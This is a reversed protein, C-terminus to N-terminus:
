TDGRDPSSQAGPYRCGDDCEHGDCGPCPNHTSPVAADWDIAGYKAEMFDLRAKYKRAAKINQENAFKLDTIYPDDTSAQAAALIAAEVAARAESLERRSCRGSEYDVAAQILKETLSTADVPKPCLCSGDCDGGLSGPYRCNCPAFPPQASHRDLADIARQIRWKAANYASIDIDALAARLQEIPESPTAAEGSTDEALAELKRAIDRCHSELRSLKTSYHAADLLQQALDRLADGAVADGGTATPTARPLHVRRVWYSHPNSMRGRVAEAEQWTSYVNHIEPFVNKGPEWKHEQGEKPPDWDHLYLVAWAEITVPSCSNDTM